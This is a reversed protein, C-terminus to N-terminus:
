WSFATTLHVKAHRRSHNVRHRSMGAIRAGGVPIGCIEGALVNSNGGDASSRRPPPATSAGTRRLGFEIVPNRRRWIRAAKTAILTQFQDPEARTEVVRCWSRAKVRLLARKQLRSNRPSRTSGPQFAPAFRHVRPRLRHRRQRAARTALDGDGFQAQRLSPPPSGWAHAGGAFPPKRFTLHFCAERDAMGTKWYGYAMTLQYLDTLLALSNFVNVM